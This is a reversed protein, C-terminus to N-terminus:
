PEETSEWKTIDAGGDMIGELDALASKLHETEWHAAEDEATRWREISTLETAAGQRQFYGYELCGDESRTAITLKNLIRLGDELRAAHCKFRATVYLTKTM